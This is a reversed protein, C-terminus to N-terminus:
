SGKNIADSLKNIIKLALSEDFEEKLDIARQVMGARLRLDLSDGSIMKEVDFGLLAGFACLTFM